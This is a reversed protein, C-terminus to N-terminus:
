TPVVGTPLTNNEPISPTPNTNTAIATRTSSGHKLTYAGLIFFSATCIVLFSAVMGLLLANKGDLLQFFNKQDNM